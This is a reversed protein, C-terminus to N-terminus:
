KKGAMSPFMDDLFDKQPGTSIGKIFRDNGILDYINNFMWVMVPDDGLGNQEVWEKIGNVGGLSEPPNSAEAIKYFATIAKNVNQKYADGKWINKLTNIAMNRNEEISKLVENHLAIERELYKKSLEAIQHQTLHLAHATERFEKELVEDYVMGEPLKEPKEIVYDEPKEPVGIAKRYEAVEEPTPNEGLPKIYSKIKGNLDLYSKGLDSITKFQTFTEEGKLDDSLQAIWAPREVKGGDNQSGDNDNLDDM